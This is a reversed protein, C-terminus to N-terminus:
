YAHQPQPFPEITLLGETFALLSSNLNGASMFLWTHDRIVIVEASLLLSLVIGPGQQSTLM